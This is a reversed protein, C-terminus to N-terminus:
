FDDFTLEGETSDGCTSPDITEFLRGTGAEYGLYILNGTAQGTYRDKLIRLTTTQRFMPDPHQQDRELGFMYYSWFGIARSGKFHRISVQGGEEHPKGDPTALHSVFHIIIKLENALGAMEKMIQELSSKEDSTDAMATLHDLYFLKIGEAHALYRIQKEIVDWDTQGFSNYFTVKDKLHAVASKLEDVTWGADPVHFKKGDIKGAVRKATEVPQQELFFLGVKEGLETVDYAIQQTLFDTKGIGTGAGFAYLECLRRGYTLETLTPLFWPLGREVPKDIDEMLDEIQVLGDPRYVKADWMANILEKSRGAVLMEGADKLPLTAIKAKSPTLLLACERAAQQGPDDNDFMFVVTEFSEVWELQQTIDRKAGNAGSRISVVPWKHDLVQSMSMADIEGETIVLMKGKDRWLHQGFLGAQKANGLFKFDKDPFRIKQGVVKGEKSRYNAVQVPKGEYKGVTYGWRECTQASLKRKALAIAEGTIPNFDSMPKVKRVDHNDTDRPPHTYHGCSFCYRHGDSYVANADSSGCTECGTKFLHESEAREM